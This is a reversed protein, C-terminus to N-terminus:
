GSLHTPRRTTRARRWLGLLGVVFLLIASLIGLWTAQVRSRYLDAFAPTEGAGPIDQAAQSITVAMVVAAAVCLMSVAPPWDLLPAAVAIALASVTGVIAAGVTYTEFGFGPEFTFWATFWALGGIATGASLLIWAAVRNPRAVHSPYGQSAVAVLRDAERLM